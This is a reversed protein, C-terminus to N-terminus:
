IDFLSLPGVPACHYPPYRTQDDGIRTALKRATADRSQIATKRVGRHAPPSINPPKIKKELGVTKTICNIALQAFLILPLAYMKKLLLSHSEAFLKTCDELRVGLLSVCLYFWAPM